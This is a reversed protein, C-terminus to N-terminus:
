GGRISLSTGLVSSGEGFGDSTVDGVRVSGPVAVETLVADALREVRWKTNAVRGSSPVQTDEYTVRV